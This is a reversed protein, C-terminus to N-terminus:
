DCVGEFKALALAAGRKKGYTSFFWRRQIYRGDARRWRNVIDGSAPDGHASGEAQQTDVRDSPHVLNQWNLEIVRERSMQLEEAFVRNCWAITGGAAPRSIVFGNDAHDLVALLEPDQLIDDMIGGALTAPDGRRLAEIDSRLAAVRVASLERRLADVTELCERKDRNVAEIQGWMAAVDARLGRTAGDEDETAKATALRAQARLNSNQSRVTLAAIIAALFGGGLLISFWPPM